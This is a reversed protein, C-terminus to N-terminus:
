RQKKKSPVLASALVFTIVAMIHYCYYVSGLLRFSSAPGTVDYVNFVCFNYTIATLTLLHCLRDYIFKSSKPTGDANVFHPRLLRRLLLSVERFFGATIFAIYFGPYFGHWIASCVNASLVNFRNVRLYVYYKLWRAAAQNWANLAEFYNEAGEFDFIKINCMRDWTTGTYSFGSLIFSCEAFKWVFYYQYRICCFCGMIFYCRYLFTTETLWEDSLVFTRPFIAPGVGFGIVLCILSTALTGLFATMRGESPIHKSDCFNKYHTFECSILLVSPYFFIWGYYELLSPVQPVLVQQIYSHKQVIESDKNEGDWLQILFCFLKITIVMQPGTFDLHYSGWDSLMTYLHSCSMMLLIFPLGVYLANKRSFVLVIMYVILTTFVLVWVDFRFCWFLFFFGVVINYVHKVSSSFSRLVYFQFTAFCMSLVLCVLFRIRDLSFGLDETASALSIDLQDLVDM